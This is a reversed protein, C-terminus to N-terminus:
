ARCAPRGQNNYATHGVARGDFAPGARIRLRGPMVGGRGRREGPELGAGPRAQHLRRGRAGAPRGAVAALVVRHRAPSVTDALLPRCVVGEVPPHRGAALAVGFGAGVLHAIEEGHSARHRVPAAPGTDDAGLLRGFARRLACGEELHALMVEDELAAFPVADLAAFRHGPPALVMLGDEFLPWRNLREAEVEAEPLLAADLEGHLLMETLRESTGQTFTLELAAGFRVAIEKLVPVLAATAVLSCLGLRLPAADQYRLSKAKSRVEEAAVYTRELLPLMTRGLETLQTLSRERLLLLGGLEDELRQISRTLAPQTVNCQEAARTFNLTDALALFYRIQVLDM